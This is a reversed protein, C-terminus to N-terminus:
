FYKKQDKLAGPWRRRALAVLTRLDETRLDDPAWIGRRPSRGFGRQDYALTTVGQSAWWPAAFHFANAYDNMGHVAIIVAWPHEPDPAADWRTLGLRAADFSVFADREIRPGTFALDPRGARQLTPACAALLLAALLACLPRFATPRM